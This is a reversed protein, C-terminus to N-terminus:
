YHEILVFYKKNITYMSVKIQFISRTALLSIVIHCEVYFVYKYLTIYHESLAFLNHYNFNYCGVIGNM